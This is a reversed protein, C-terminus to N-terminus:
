PLNSSFITEVQFLPYKDKGPFHHTRYRFVWCYECKVNPLGDYFPHYM